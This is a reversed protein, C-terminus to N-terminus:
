TDVWTAWNYKYNLPPLEGFLEFYLRLMEGEIRYADDKDRAGRYTFRLDTVAVGLRELLGLKGLRWGAMHGEQGPNGACRVFDRLRGRLRVSEGIDVVAHPDDALLRGIKDRRIGIIYAGAGEPVEALVADTLPLWQMWKGAGLFEWRRWDTLTVAM